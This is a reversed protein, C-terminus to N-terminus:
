LELEQQTVNRAYIRRPVEHVRRWMNSRWPYDWGECKMWEHWNLTGENQRYMKFLHRLISFGNDKVNNMAYLGHQHMIKTMRTLDWGERLYHRNLYIFLRRARRLRKNSYRNVNRLARIKSM